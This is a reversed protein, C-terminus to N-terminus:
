AGEEETAAEEVAEKAPDLLGRDILQQREKAAAEKKAREEEEKQKLEKEHQVLTVDHDMFHLDINCVRKTDLKFM